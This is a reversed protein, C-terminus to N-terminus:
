GGVLYLALGPFIWVLVLALLVLLVSPLAGRTIEEMREHPLISKLAFLNMGVPPTIVALEMNIVLIIGFWIPDFGVAKAVPYFVPVTILLISIVELFCGLIFWILNMILMVLWPAIKSAVVYSALMQPLGILTLASGLILAGLVVALLMSSSKAAAVLLDPLDAFTLTRRLVMTILAAYVVGVAAAETPTYIGLYIGGLVVGPLALDPLCALTARLAESLSWPKENRSNLPPASIMAWIALMSALMLGPIIGATFLKGPSADSLSAYIIMPISPPILIGLAGGVASLGYSLRKSYGLAQMEPIAIKGITLVSAMSSGVIAAFFTFAAVAAVGTGGRVGRLWVNAVGFLQQGVKGRYLMEGMLIYLPIALIIPDSLSRNLTLPLQVLFRDGGAALITAVGALGLSFAIPVGAVFCFLLVTPLIVFVTVSTM